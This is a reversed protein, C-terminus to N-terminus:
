GNRKVKLVPKEFQSPKERTQLDRPKQALSIGYTSPVGIGMEFRLSM